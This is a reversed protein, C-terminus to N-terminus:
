HIGKSTFTAAPFNRADFFDPSMLHKTLNPDDTFLSQMDINLTLQGQGADFSGHFGRFGGQHRRDPKAGVFTVSSGATTITLMRGPTPKAMPDPDTTLFLRVPVEDSIENAAFTMGFASRRLVFSAQIAVTSGRWRIDAPAVVQQKVGRLTLDGLIVHTTNFRKDERIETSVFNAEPFKRADFFDPSKLHNTLNPNDTFLSNADIKVSLKGVDSDFSGSFRSFGGTHKQRPKSGSFEIRSKGADIPLQGASSEAASASAVVIAAIWLLGSLRPFSM